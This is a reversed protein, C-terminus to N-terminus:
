MNPLVKHPITRRITMDHCIGFNVGCCDVVHERFNADFTLENVARCYMGVSDLKSIQCTTGKFQDIKVVLKCRHKSKINKKYDDFENLVVSNACTGLNKAVLDWYDFKNELLDLKNNRPRAHNKFSCKWQMSGKLVLNHKPLLCFLQLLPGLKVDEGETSCSSDGTWDKLERAAVSLNRGDTWGDTWGTRGGTRGNTRRGTRAVVRM